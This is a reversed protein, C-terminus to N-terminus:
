IFACAWLEYQLTFSPFSFTQGVENQIIYIALQEELTVAGSSALFTYCCVSDSNGGGAFGLYTGSIYYWDNLAPFPSLQGAQLGIATARMYGHVFTASANCSGLSYSNVVGIPTTRASFSISGQIVDTCRLLKDNSSFRQVGNSGVFEFFPTGTTVLTFRAAM